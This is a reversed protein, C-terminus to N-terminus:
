PRAIGARRHESGEGPPQAVPERSSHSPGRASGALEIRWADFACARRQWQRRADRPHRADRKGASRLSHPRARSPNRLLPRRPRRGSARSPRTRGESARHHGRAARRYGLPCRRLDRDGSPRWAGRDPRLAGRPPASRRPDRRNGDHHGVSRTRAQRGAPRCGRPPIGPRVSPRVGPACGRGDRPNWARQRERPRRSRGTSDRHAVERGAVRPGRDTRRPGPPEPARDSILM